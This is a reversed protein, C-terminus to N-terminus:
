RVQFKHGDRLGFHSKKGVDGHVPDNTATTLQVLVVMPDDQASPDFGKQFIIGGACTDMM